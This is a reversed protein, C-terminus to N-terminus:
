MRGIGGRFGFPATDQKVEFQTCNKVLLFEYMTALRWAYHQVHQQKLTSRNQTM